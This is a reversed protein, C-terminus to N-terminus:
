NGSKSMVVNRVFPVLFIHWITAIAGIVLIDRPNILGTNIIRM